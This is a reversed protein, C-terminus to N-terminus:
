GRIKTRNIDCNDPEIILEEIKKTRIEGSGPNLVSDVDSIIDADINESYEFALNTNILKCNKMTLDQIYCLGQDSEITCNVFTLNKTNWGLYEGIIYSDYVTVNECNWFCDKSLLRSNRVEVNKAGDFAYNGLLELHDVKINQSNMGFYDGRASVNSLEVGDCMWLTEQANLMSSNKVTLNKCRRFTKPAGLLCESVEMDETYWIGSRATEQFSSNKLKINKSYWIPYKWQFECGFLEIDSSEKLPSEGDFFICDYIKLDKGRYLPREGTFKEERIEEDRRSVPNYRKQEMM